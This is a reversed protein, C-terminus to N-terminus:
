KGGGKGVYRRGLEGLALLALDALQEIEKQSFGKVAEGGRYLSQIQELVPLSGSAAMKAFWEDADEWSELVASIGASHGNAIM